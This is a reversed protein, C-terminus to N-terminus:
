PRAIATATPYERYCSAIFRDFSAEFKSWHEVAEPLTKNLNATRGNHVSYMSLHLYEQVQAQSASSM